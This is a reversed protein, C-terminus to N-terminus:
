QTFHLMEMLVTEEGAKEFSQVTNLAQNEWKCKTKYLSKGVNRLETIKTGSTIKKHATEENIHVHKDNLVVKGDM